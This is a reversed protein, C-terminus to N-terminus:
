HLLEEDLDYLEGYRSAVYVGLANHPQMVTGFRYNILSQM